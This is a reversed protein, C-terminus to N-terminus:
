AHAKRQNHSALAVRKNHHLPKESDDSRKSSLMRPCAPKLLQPEQARSTPQTATISLSLQEMAHTNMEPWPNLGHRRCQCSSEKGSVWWPFGNWVNKFSLFYSWLQLCDPSPNYEQSVQKINGNKSEVSSSASDMSVSDM